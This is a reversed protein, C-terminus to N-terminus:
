SWEDVRAYRLTVGTTARVNFQDVSRVIVPRSYNVDADFTANGVEDRIAVWTTGSDLTVEVATSTDSAFTVMFIPAYDPSVGSTIDTGFWEENAAKAGSTDAKIVEPM